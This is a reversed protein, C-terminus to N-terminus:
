SRGRLSTCLRVLQPKVKPMLIFKLYHLTRPRLGKRFLFLWRHGRTADTWDMKWEDDVGLFDYEALGKACADQLILNLLM